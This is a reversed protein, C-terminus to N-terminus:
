SLNMDDLSQEYRSQARTQLHSSIRRCRKLLQVQRKSARPDNLIEALNFSERQPERGDVFEILAEAYDQSLTTDGESTEVKKITYFRGPWRQNEGFPRQYTKGGYGGSTLDDSVKRTKQNAMRIKM